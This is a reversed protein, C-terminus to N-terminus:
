ESIQPVISEVNTDFRDITETNRTALRGKTRIIRRQAITRKHDVQCIGSCHLSTTQQINILFIQQPSKM